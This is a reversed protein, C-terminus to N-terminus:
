HRRSGGALRGSSALRAAQGTRRLARRGPRHRGRACNAATTCSRHCAQGRLNCRLEWDILGSM